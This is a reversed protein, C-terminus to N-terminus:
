YELFLQLDIENDTNCFLDYNDKFNEKITNIIKKKFQSFESKGKPNIPKKSILLKLEKYCQKIQSHIKQELLLQNNQNFNIINNTDLNLDLEKEELDM